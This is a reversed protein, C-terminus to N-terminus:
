KLKKILLNLVDIIMQNIDKYLLLVLLAACLINFANKSRLFKNLIEKGELLKYMFKHFLQSETGEKELMYFIFSLNVLIIFLLILSLKFLINHNTFFLLVTIWLFLDALTLVLMTYFLFILSKTNMSTYKKCTDSLLNILSKISYYLTKVSIVLTKFIKKKILVLFFWANKIQQKRHQFWFYENRDLYPTQVIVLLACFLFCITFVISSYVTPDYYVSTEIQERRTINKTILIHFTFYYVCYCHILGAIVAIYYLYGFLNLTYKRVLKKVLYPRANGEFNTYAKCLFNVFKTIFRYEQTQIQKLFILMKKFSYNLPHVELLIFLIMGCIIINLLLLLLKCTVFLNKLNLLILILSNKM